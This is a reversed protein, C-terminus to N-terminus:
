SHIFKINSYGNIVLRVVDEDEDNTWSVKEIVASSSTMKKGSEGKNLVLKVDSGATIGIDTPDFADDWPLELTFATDLTTGKRQHHGASKANTVKALASSEDATWKSVPLSYNTTTITVLGGQGRWFAM